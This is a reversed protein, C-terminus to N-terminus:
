MEKSAAESNSSRLTLLYAEEVAKIKIEPELETGLSEELTLLVSKIQSKYYSSLWKEIYMKIWINIVSLLSKQLQHKVRQLRQTVETQNIGLQNAVKQEDMQQGYRLQLIEREGRELKKIASVLAAQILDSHLPAPYDQELWQALYEKVWQHPQSLGVLADLLKVTSKSLHRSITGQNIGLRAALQKQSLGVGYYLLLIKQYEPKLTKMQQRLTFDTQNALHQQEQRLEETEVPEQWELVLAKQQEEFELERGTAQLAELSFCPTISKPYNQLATICIEMWSQIQKGTVVSLSASVEHPASPLLKETNYCQASKEFDEQEPEPWKKGIQRTPNKVKNVRYVQKFYKRAFIFRSIDPENCGATQLAEKLEKDSKKYLLRWCSFKGVDTEHKITKIM